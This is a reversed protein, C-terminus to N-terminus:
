EYLVGLPLILPTTLPGALLLLPMLLGLGITAQVDGVDEM